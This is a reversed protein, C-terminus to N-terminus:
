AHNESFDHLIEGEGANKQENRSFGINLILLHVFVKTAVKVSYFDCKTRKTSPERHNIVEYRCCIHVQFTSLFGKRCIFPAKLSVNQIKVFHDFSYQLLHCKVHNKLFDRM